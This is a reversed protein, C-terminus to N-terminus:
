VDDYPKQTCPVHDEDCPLEWFWLATQYMPYQPFMMDVQQVKFLFDIYENNEVSM